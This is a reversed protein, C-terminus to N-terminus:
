EIVYWNGIKNGNVDHLLGGSDNDIHTNEVKEALKTLIRAVEGGNDSRESPEYFAANDMNIRITLQM